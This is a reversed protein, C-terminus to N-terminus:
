TCCATLATMFPRIFAYIESFSNYLASPAVRVMNPPRFDAVVGSRALHQVVEEANARVSISIQSGREKQHRPTVVEFLPSAHADLLELLFATQAESKKRMATIKAEEFLALSAVLPTMALISPTSVQWSAAGGHPIFEPQLQMQFRTEPDNGWWGSFRPLVENHHSAHVYAIGPGGPGSSLYKYSCGVAFDVGLAHLELPINGAAHALNYGVKCSCRKAHATIRTMDLAQGSLFHVCSLFLLAVGEDDIARELDEQRLLQEGPRPEVIILADRPDLNHAFLHSKIAYLDSPFSPADIVIKYRTATPRYFSVLLLHLNVTLSHMVAVEDIEAGLLHALPTKLARDLLRYWDNKEQFWGEVGLEEWTRMQAAMHASADLAPLGLSNTCLYIKNQPLAFRKRFGKLPDSDDLALAKEQANM